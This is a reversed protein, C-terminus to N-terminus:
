ELRIVGIVLAIGSVQDKPIEFPDYDKNDSVCLWLNSSTGKKIRKILIGQEETAMVHVKNWQIFAPDKLIRCAVIDGSNYKPYMSSGTIRIMFDIQKFDPVVYYQQIDSEKISYSMNGIGAVAETKVLPIGDKAQSKEPKNGSILWDLSIGKKECFAFITEYDAIGRTKWGSLTNPKVGLANALQLDSSIKIASKLRTLIINANQPQM